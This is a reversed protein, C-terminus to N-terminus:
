AARDQPASVTAPTTTEIDAPPPGQYRIGATTPTSAVSPMGRRRHARQRQSMLSSPMSMWCPVSAILRVSTGHIRTWCTSVRRPSKSCANPSDVTTTCVAAPLWVIGSSGARLGVLQARPDGTERAGLFVLFLGDNLAGVDVGSASRSCRRGDDDVGGVRELVRRERQEHDEGHRQQAARQVGARQQLRRDVAAHAEHDRDRHARDLVLRRAVVDPGLRDVVDRAHQRLRDRVDAEVPDLGDVDVLARQLAREADIRDVDLRARALLAPLDRQRGQLGLRDLVQPRRPRLRHQDSGAVVRGGPRGLATSRRPRSTAATVAPWSPMM